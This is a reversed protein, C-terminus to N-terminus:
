KYTFESKWPERHFTGTFFYENGRMLMSTDVKDCDIHVNISDEYKGFIDYQEIKSGEIFSYGYNHDYWAQFMVTQNLYKEYNEQVEKISLGSYSKELDLRSLFLYCAVAIILIIIIISILKKKIM